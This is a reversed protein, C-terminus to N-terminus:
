SANTTAAPATAPEEPRDEIKPPPANERTLRLFLDPAKFTESTADPRWPTPNDNASDDRGNEGVSYVYPPKADPVYQIPQTGTAFPDDPVAPLYDPVLASLTPPRQGAHDHQYLRIALAAAALRAQADARMSTMGARTLAPRIADSVAHAAARPGDSKPPPAPYKAKSAPWNPAAVAAIAQEGEAVLKLTDMEISPRVLTSRRAVNTGIDVQAAREGQLADVISKRRPADDLLLAILERVQERTAPAAAPQTAISGGGAMQLDPAMESVADIAIAEVGVRVFHTILFVNGDELSDAIARIDRIHELAAAYDGHHAENIAVARTFLAVHRVENLHPLLVSWMPSVINVGWDAKGVERARRIDALAAANNKLLQDLVASIDPRLPLASANDVAWDEALSLKLSKEAQRLYIAANRSDPLSYNKAYDALVIKEGRAHAATIAAEMRRDAVNGWWVRVGAVVAVVLVWLVALRALWWYRPPYPEAPEPSNNAVFDTM